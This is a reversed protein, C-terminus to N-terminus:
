QKFEVFHKLAGLYNGVHLKNTPRIGGVIIEPKNMYRIIDFFGAM